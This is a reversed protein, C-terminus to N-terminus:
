LQNIIREVDDIPIIVDTEIEDDNRQLSRQDQERLARVATRLDVAAAVSRATADRAICLLEVRDGEHYYIAYTEPQWPLEIASLCRPRTLHDAYLAPAILNIHRNKRFLRLCGRATLSCRKPPKPLSYYLLMAIREDLPRQTQQPRYYEIINRRTPEIRKLEGWRRMSPVITDLQSQWASWLQEIYASAAITLADSIVPEHSRRLQVAEDRNSGMYAQPAILADLWKLQANFREGIAKGIGIPIAPVNRVICGQGGFLARHEYRNFYDREEETYLHEILRSLREAAAVSANELFWTTRDLGYRLVIDMIAIVYDETRLSDCIHMHLLEGTLVDWGIIMTQKALDNNNDLYIKSVRDDLFIWRYGGSGHGAGFDAEAIEWFSYAVHATDIAADHKRWRLRWQSQWDQMYFISRRGHGIIYRYVRDVDFVIGSQALSQAVRLIASRLGRPKMTRPNCAAPDALFEALVLPVVQEIIAADAGRARGRDSRSSRANPNHINGSTHLALATPRPVSPQLAEARQMQQLLPREEGKPDSLQLTHVRMDM